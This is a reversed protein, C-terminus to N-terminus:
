APVLIPRFTASCLFIGQEYWSELGPGDPGYSTAIGVFVMMRSKEIDIFVLYIVYLMSAREHFWQQLPFAILIVEESRTDTVKTIWCAIRMRWITV